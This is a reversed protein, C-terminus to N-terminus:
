RVRGVNFTGYATIRVVVVLVDDVTALPVNRAGGIWAALDRYQHALRVGGLRWVFLLAHNQYARAWICPGCM